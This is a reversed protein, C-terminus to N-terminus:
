RGSNIYAHSNKRKINENSHLKEPMRALDPLAPWWVVWLIPALGIPTFTHRERSGRPRGCPHAEVIYPSPVFWSTPANTYFNEILRVNLDM